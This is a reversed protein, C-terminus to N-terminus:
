ISPSFIIRGEPQTKLQGKVGGLVLNTLLQLKEVVWNRDGYVLDM